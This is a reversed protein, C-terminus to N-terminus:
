DGMNMAWGIVAGGIASMVTGALVDVAMATMDGYMTTMSYQMLAWSLGMILGVMAGKNLGASAGNVGAWDWILSYFLGYVLNGAILAWWVMADDARQACGNMHEAYWTDLAMGYLVWGLLFFAVGGAITGKLLKSTNM